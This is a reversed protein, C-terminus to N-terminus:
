VHARGIQKGTVIDTNRDTLEEIKAQQAASAEKGQLDELNRKVVEFNDTDIDREGQLSIMAQGAKAGLKKVKDALESVEAHKQKYAESDPGESKRLDNLETYLKELHARGISIRDHLDNKPNDVESIDAGAEM